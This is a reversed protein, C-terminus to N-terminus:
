SRLNRDRLVGIESDPAGMARTLFGRAIVELEADDIKQSKAM